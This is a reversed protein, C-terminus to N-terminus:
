RAPSSRPSLTPLPGAPRLADRAQLRPDFGLPAPLDLDVPGRAMPSARRRRPWTTRACRVASRGELQPPVVAGVCRRPQVRHDGGVIRATATRQERHLDYATARRLLLRSTELPSWSGRTHSTATVVRSGPRSALRFGLSVWLSSSSSPTRALLGRPPPFPLPFPPPFFEDLLPPDFFIVHLFLSTLAGSFLIPLAKLSRLLSRSAPKGGVAVLLPMRSSPPM